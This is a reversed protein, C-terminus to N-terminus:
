YSNDCYESLNVRTTKNARVRITGTDADCVAGAAKLEIKYRGPWMVFRFHHRDEHVERHRVLRGTGDFIEVTAKHTSDWPFVNGALTGTSHRPTSSAFAASTESCVSLALAVLGLAVGRRMTLSLSDACPSWDTDKRSDSLVEM